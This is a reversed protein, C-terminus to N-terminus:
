EFYDMSANGLINVIGGSVGKIYSSVTLYVVDEKCTVSVPKPQRFVTMMNYVSNYFIIIRKLRIIVAKLYGFCTVRTHLVYTTHKISQRWKQTLIYSSTSAWCLETTIQIEFRQPNLNYYRLKLSVSCVTGFMPYVYSHAENTAWTRINM